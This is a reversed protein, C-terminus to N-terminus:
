NTPFWKVWYMFKDLIEIAMDWFLIHAGSIVLAALLVTLGYEISIQGNENKVADCRSKLISIQM